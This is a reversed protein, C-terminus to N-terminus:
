TLEATLTTGFLRRVLMNGAECGVLRGMIMDQLMNSISLRKTTSTYADTLWQVMHVSLGSPQKVMELVTLCDSTTKTVLFTPLDPRSVFVLTGAIPRFCVEQTCYLQVTAGQSSHSCYPLVCYLICWSTLEGPLMGPKVAWCWLSHLPVTQCLQDLIELGWCTVLVATHLLLALMYYVATTPLLFLLPTFLLVGVIIQM